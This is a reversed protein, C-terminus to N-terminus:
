FAFFLSFFNEKIISNFNFKHDVPNEQLSFQLSYEFIKIFNSIKFLRIVNM